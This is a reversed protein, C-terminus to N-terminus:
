SIIGRIRLETELETGKTPASSWPSNTCSPMAMAAVSRILATARALLDAGAVDTIIGGFEQPLAPAARALARGVDHGRAALYGSAAPYFRQVLGDGPFRITVVHAQV